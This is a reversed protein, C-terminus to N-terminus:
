RRPTKTATDQRVNPLGIATRFAGLAAEYARLRELLATVAPAPARAATRECSGAFAILSDIRQALQRAAVRTPPEYVTPLMQARGSAMYGRATGCLGGLFRGAQRQQLSDHSSRNVRDVGTKLQAIGRGATRLGQL